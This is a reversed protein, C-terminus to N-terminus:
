VTEKKERAQMWKYLGAVVANLGIVALHTSPNVIVIYTCIGMYWLGMFENAYKM